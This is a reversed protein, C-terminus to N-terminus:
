PVDSLCLALLFKILSLVACQIVSIIPLFERLCAAHWPIHHHHPAPVPHSIPCSQAARASRATAIAGECWHVPCLCHLLLLILLSSSSSHHDWSLWQEQHRHGHLAPRCVAGPAAPEEWRGGELEVCRVVVCLMLVDCQSILLLSM